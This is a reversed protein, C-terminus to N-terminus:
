DRIDRKEVKNADISIVNYTARIGLDKARSNQSTCHTQAKRENRFFHSARGNRTDNTSTFFVTM